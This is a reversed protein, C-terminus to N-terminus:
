QPSHRLQASALLGPSLYSIPFLLPAFCRRTLLPLRSWLSTHVLRPLGTNNQLSTKRWHLGRGWKGRRTFIDHDYLLILGSNRNYCCVLFAKGDTILALSFWWVTMFSAHLVNCIQSSFLCQCPLTKCTQFSLHAHFSFSNPCYHM